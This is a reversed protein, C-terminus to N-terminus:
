ERREIEVIAEVGAMMGDRDDKDGEDEENRELEGPGKGM